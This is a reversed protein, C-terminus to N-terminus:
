KQPSKKEPFVCTRRRGNRVRLLMLSGVGKGHRGSVDSKTTSKALETTMVSLLASM